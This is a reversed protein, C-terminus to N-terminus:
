KQYTIKGACMTLMVPLNALDEQPCTDPDRDLVCIDAIKGPALSGARNEEFGVWAADKTQARIGDRFTIAEEPTMSTGLVTKRNVMAAIDRISDVPWYGPADSGFAIPFGENQITQLPFCNKNREPGLYAAGMDGVFYYVSPNTVPVAGVKKARARREPTFLHNGLHEIRHRIDPLYKKKQVKELALLAMDQAADGIAHICCRIGTLHCAEVTEELEKQDIRILGKMGSFGAQRATFGGDISLKSGGIKLMDNGFPPRFGLDLLSRLPVKSEVIRILLQVRVPLRGQFCLSQYAKIQETTRMIDHVVTIGRAAAKKLKVEIGDEINKEKSDDTYKVILQARERLVGNPEGNEGRMIWGGQPDSTDKTINVAQLALSNAVMIHAGFNAYCPNRPAAQDLEQKTPLRKESLREDQMPSGLAHIWRGPPLKRARDRIKSLIDNVSKITPDYFDRIEVAHIDAVDQALHVHIDALGPTVIRGEVDIVDTQPGALAEIEKRTGVAVIDKGFVAIAEADPKKENM